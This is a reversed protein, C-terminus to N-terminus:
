ECFGVMTLGMFCCVIFLCVWLFGFWLTVGFDPLCGLFCRLLGYGLLLLYICFCTIFVFCVDAHYAIIANFGLGTLLLLGM